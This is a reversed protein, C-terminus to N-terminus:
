RRVPADGELDSWPEDPLRVRTFAPWARRFSAREMDNTVIVTTDSVRGLETLLTLEVAVGPSPHRYDFLISAAERAVIGLVVQWWANAVELKPIAHHFDPRFNTGNALGILPLRGRLEQEARAEVEGLESTTMTLLTGDALTKEAAEIDFNRLYLGFPAGREFHERLIALAAEHQKGARDDDHRVISLLTARASDRAEQPADAMEVDIALYMQLNSPLRLAHHAQPLSALLAPEAVLADAIVAGGIAREACENAAPLTSTAFQGVCRRHAEFAERHRGQRGLVLGQLYLATAISVEDETSQPALGPECLPDLLALAPALEMANMHAVAARLDDSWRSM